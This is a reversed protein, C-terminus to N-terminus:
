YSVYCGLYWRPDFELDFDKCFRELEELYRPELEDLDIPEATWDVCHDVTSVIIELEDCTGIFITKLKKYKSSGPWSDLMEEIFENLTYDEDENKFEEPLKIGYTLHASM